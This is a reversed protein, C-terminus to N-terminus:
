AETSQWRAAATRTSRPRHYLVTRGDDLVGMVGPPNIYMPDPQVNRVWEGQPSFVLYRWPRYDGVWITHGPLVWLYFANRFEGPGNGRRGSQDLFRGQQDYFRLQQSGQNVPAIRGDSLRGAGFVRHLEYEDAGEELGITVSPVAGITCTASARDLDNEAILVGVSDHIVTAPTGASDASGCGAVLAVGAIISARQVRALELGSRPRMRILISCRLQLSM